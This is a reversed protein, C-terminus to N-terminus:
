PKVEFVLGSGSGGLSTTGFLNGATDLALGAYPNAGDAGGTFVYLATKKAASNLKFVTGCGYGSCGSAGGGTTTGYLNGAGDRVLGGWLHAGDAGGKFRYLVTEKGGSVVFVVGNGSVGGSTTTGYFSANGDFLLGAFPFAGDRGAFSHLVTEKGTTDVEFVTGHGSAGGRFTTGYFTGAADQVVGANPNVGDAGAFSHLVTEKRNTDLKFVTGCGKGNQCSLTGGNVTTGYLNGATDRLLDGNPTAGDAGGTFSYLITEKGAKNIMYVAGKRSAGGSQTTGYLNGAADQIVGAFPHSGDPKGRFPHLVTEKGTSDVKYVVGSKSLGGFFTTGYLNGTADVILASPPTAGDAAGTFTYVVNFSQAQASKSTVVVSVLAVALALAIRIRRQCTGSNWSVNQLKATM